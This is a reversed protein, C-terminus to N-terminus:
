IGLFLWVFLALLNLAYSSTYAREFDYVVEHLDPGESLTVHSHWPLRELADSRNGASPLAESNPAPRILTEQLFVSFLVLYRLAKVKKNSNM